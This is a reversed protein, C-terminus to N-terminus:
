FIVGPLIRSFSTVLALVNSTAGIPAPVTTRRSVPAHDIALHSLGKLVAAGNQPVCWDLELYDTRLQGSFPVAIGFPNLRAVFSYAELM